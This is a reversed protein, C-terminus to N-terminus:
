RWQWLLVLQLALSTLLVSSAAVCSTAHGSAAQGDSRDASVVPAETGTFEFETTCGETCGSGSGSGSGEDSSDQFYIDNGNYANRLKTTMMRLTMIQQRIFTDPRTIDVEVEPNHLQNTLGDKVVEPFYRGKTHSNWCQESDSSVVRGESCISNPLGSWFRKSEKLKEKIDVVSQQMTRWVIRLRDLSTGAATTPREEPSYPRFRANFTDTIGRTSRGMGAPKPHGCGQFVKASVQMTNDQMTMIAESIKVDIPEMVAEINFPGELRDAVLLMADIFLNWEPDLDAQNALCGKIVNQCYNGCPKLDPLGGCYPCYLMRTLAKSCGPSVNVKAVRNAVERGVMLGQVFTRAAIFARTVQAKLKRPVDGFPKLQDTYKSICELYDDTFHYQSNLLQFMRELLRSWFDNLMEQLNVNGGTYYRKLETFLEQFVESNQMYLKGYTRVFMDNLSRQSNELLELFFEDFKKHRSTFTTRLNQSMEEVLNEFELKSQQGLSDEMESTCCTYGQSCVRLHEGSIEQHPVSALSFGKATYAQRVDNCSRSKVDGGFSLSLLVSLTCFVIQLRFMACRHPLDM